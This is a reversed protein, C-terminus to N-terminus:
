AGIRRSLKGAASRMVKRWAARFVKQPVEEYARIVIDGGFYDPEITIEGRPNTSFSFYTVRCGDVALVKFWIYYIHDPEGSGAYREQARYCTGVKDRNKEESEQEELLRLAARNVDLKARLRAIKDARTMPAAQQRSTDRKTWTGCIPNRARTMTTM